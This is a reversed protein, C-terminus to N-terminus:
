KERHENYEKVAVKLREVWGLSSVTIVDNDSSVSSGRVYMYYRSDVGGTNVSSGAPCSASTLTFGNSATFSNNGYNLEDGRYRQKTIQIDYRLINDVVRETIALVFAPSTDKTRVKRLKCWDSIRM